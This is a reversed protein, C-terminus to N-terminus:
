RFQATHPKKGILQRLAVDNTGAEAIMRNVDEEPWSVRLNMRVRHRLRALYPNYSDPIEEPM